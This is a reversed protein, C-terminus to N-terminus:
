ERSEFFKNVYRLISENNYLESKPLNIVNYSFGFLQDYDVLYGEGSPDDNYRSDVVQVFQGVAHDSGRIINTTETNLDLRRSM